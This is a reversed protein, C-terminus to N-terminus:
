SIIIFQLVWNMQYLHKLFSPDDTSLTIPIGKELFLPLPYTELSPIVGLLINSSLCLNLPFATLLCISWYNRIKPPGCEMILENQALRACLM